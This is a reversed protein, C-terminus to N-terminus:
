EINERNTKRYIIKMLNSYKIFSKFAIKNM